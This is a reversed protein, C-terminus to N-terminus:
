NESLSNLLFDELLTANDLELKKTLRRKLSKLSDDSKYDFLILMDYTPIHLLLYCCLTLEKENLTTYRNTLKTILKNLFKDMEAFFLEPEDYHLINKYTKRLQLEREKPGANKYETTLIKKQEEIQKQLVTWKDEIVKKHIGLKEEHHTEIIQNKEKRTNRTFLKFLFYGTIILLIVLGALYWTINKSIAAEKKAIYTTEMYSGKIQAEVKRLSDGLAVYKNMYTTVNKTNGKIFECNTMIRYCERQTRFDIVFNLSRSAYYFASDYQKLDFYLSSLSCYRTARNYKLNPYNLIQRYYVLASDYQDSDHFNLGMEQYLAGTQFSDKAKTIIRRYYEQAATYNKATYYTRGINLLAYFAQKNFKPINFYSYAKQYKERALKYDGQINNIEGMNQNIRGLLLSDNSDHVEDKAKLYFSMAKDYQAGNNYARGKLLLCLALRDKDPHNEYYHISFDILSDPPPSMLKQDLTRFMLLGYLARNADSKYTNPSLNRLIHFASDPATEILGEATKLEQPPRSCSFVGIAISLFFLYRLLSKFM